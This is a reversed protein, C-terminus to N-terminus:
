RGDDGGRGERGAADPGAADSGAADAVPLLVPMGGTMDAWRQLAVAVYKTFLLHHAIIITHCFSSVVGVLTSDAAFVKVRKAATLRSAGRFTRLYVCRRLPAVADSFCTFHAAIFKLRFCVPRLRGFVTRFGTPCIASDRIDFLAFGASLRKVGDIMTCSEAGVFANNLPSGAISGRYPLTSLRGLALPTLQLTREFYPTFGNVGSIIIGALFASFLASVNVGVVYLIQGIERFQRNINIVAYGNADVTMLFNVTAGEACRCFERFMTNIAGGLSRTSTKPTAGTSYSIAPLGFALM